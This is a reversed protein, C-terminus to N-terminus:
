VPERSEARPAPCLCASPERSQASPVSLREARPAPRLPRGAVGSATPNDRVPQRAIGLAYVSKM